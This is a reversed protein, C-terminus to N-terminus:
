IFNDVMFRMMAYALMEVTKHPVEFGYVDEFAHVLEHCLTTLREEYSQGTKIEVVQNEADCFGLTTRGQRDRPAIHRLFKVTWEEEGIIFTRPLKM